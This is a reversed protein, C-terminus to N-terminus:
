NLSGSGKAAAKTRAEAIEEPTPFVQVGNVMQLVCFDSTDTVTVSRGEAKARALIPPLVLGIANLEVRKAGEHFGDARFDYILYTDTQPLYLAGDDEDNPAEDNPAENDASM